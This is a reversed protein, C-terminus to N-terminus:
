PFIAVKEVAYQDDFLQIRYPGTASHVPVEVVQFGASNSVQQYFVSKNQTDFVQMFLDGIGNARYAVFLSQPSEPLIFYDVILGISEGQTIAKVDSTINEGEPTVAIVRYFLIESNHRVVNEDLYSFTTAGQETNGKELFHITAFEESNLSRQLVFADKHAEESPRWSIIVDDGVKKVQIAEIHARENQGFGITISLLISVVIFFTHSLFNM